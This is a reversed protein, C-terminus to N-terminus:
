RRMEGHCKHAVRRLKASYEANNVCRKRLFASWAKAKKVTIGGGRGGRRRLCDETHARRWIRYSAEGQAPESTKLKQLSHQENSLRERTGVFCCEVKFFARLLDEAMGVLNPSDQAMFRAPSESYLIKIKGRQEEPAPEDPAQSFSAVDEAPHPSHLMYTNGAGLAYAAHLGHKGARKKAQGVIIFLSKLTANHSLASVDSREFLCGM